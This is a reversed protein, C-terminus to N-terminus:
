GAGKIDKDAVQANFRSAANDAKEAWCISVTRKPTQTTYTRAVCQRKIDGCFPLDTYCKCVIHTM